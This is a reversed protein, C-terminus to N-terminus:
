IVKDKLIKSENTDKLHNYFASKRISIYEDDVINNFYLKSLNKLHKKLRVKSSQRM